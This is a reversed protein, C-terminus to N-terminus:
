YGKMPVVTPLETLISVTDFMNGTQNYGYTWANQEEHYYILNARSDVRVVSGKLDVSDFPGYVPAVLTNKNSLKIYFM